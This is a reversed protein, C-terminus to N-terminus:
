KSSTVFHPRTAAAAARAAFAVGSASRSGRSKQRPAIRVRSSQSSSNPLKARASATASVARSGADKSTRQRWHSTRSEAARGQSRGRKEAAVRGLSLM